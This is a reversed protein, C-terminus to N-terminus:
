RYYPIPLLEKQKRAKELEEKLESDQWKEIPKEETTAQLEKPKLEPFLENRLHVLDELVKPRQIWQNFQRIIEGQNNGKREHSNQVAYTKFERIIVAFPIQAPVIPNKWYLDLWFDNLMADKLEKRSPLEGTAGIKMFLLYLNKRDQTAPIPEATKLGGFRQIAQAKTEVLALQKTSSTTQTTTAKQLETSDAM